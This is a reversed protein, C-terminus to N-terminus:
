GIMCDVDSAVATKPRFVVYGQFRERVHERLRGIEPHLDVPWSNAPMYQWLDPLVLSQGKIEAIIDRASAHASDRRKTAGIIPSLGAPTITDHAM